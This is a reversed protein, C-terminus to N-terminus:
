DALAYALAFAGPGLNIGATVSMVSMTHQINHKEMYEIFKKYDDRQTIELPNGSFSMCVVPVLLGQKIAGEAQKLLKSVAEDFGRAKDYVRTEGQHSTSIPKINFAKALFYKTASIQKDGKARAVNRLYYLDNPVLFGHTRDALHEIHARWKNFPIKNERKLRAAEYAVIAEGTFLSCSDIVRLSFSGKIGADRRKQKYGKLIAFSANTANEYIPSRNKTMTIVLVRDYKLVLEDLFWNRIREVGMSSTQASLDKELLYKKYFMQTATSDRVDVYEGDKFHLSVPMIHIDNEKIFSSPLDCSSCVVIGHRM